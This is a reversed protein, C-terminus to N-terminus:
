NRLFASNPTSIILEEIDERIIIRTDAERRVLTKWYNSTISTKLTEQADEQLKQEYLFISKLFFYRDMQESIKDPPFEILKEITTFLSKRADRKIWQHQAHEEPEVNMFQIASINNPKFNLSYNITMMAGSFWIRFESFRVNDSLIIQLPLKDLQPPIASIRIEVLFKGKKYRKVSFDYHFEPQPTQELLWFDYFKRIQLFYEQLWTGHIDKPHLAHEYWLQRPKHLMFFTQWLNKCPDERIAILFSPCTRLDRVAGKSQWKTRWLFPVLLPIIVFKTLLNPFGKKQLVAAVNNWLSVPGDELVVGKIPSNKVIQCALITGSSNSWIGINRKDIEPRTIFYEYAKEIVGQYQKPCVSRKNFILKKREDLDWHYLPLLVNFGTTHLISAVKLSNEHDEKQFWNPVMLIGASCAIKSPFFLAILREEKTPIEVFRVSKGLDIPTLSANDESTITRALLWFILCPIVELYRIIITVLIISLFLIFILEIAM